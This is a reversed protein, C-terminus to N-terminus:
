TSPYVAQPGSKPEQGSSASTNQSTRERMQPGSSENRKFWEERETSFDRTGVQRSSAALKRSNATSLWTNLFRPRLQKRKVPNSVEWSHAKGVEELVDIARYRKLWEVVLEGWQRCLRKDKRYLPMDALEKPIGHVSEESFGPLFPQACAM